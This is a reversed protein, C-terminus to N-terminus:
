RSAPMFRFGSNPETWYSIDVASCSQRDLDPLKKPLGLNSEEAGGSSASGNEQNELLDFYVVFVCPALFKASESDQKAIFGNIDIKEFSIKIPRGGERDLMVKPKRTRMMGYHAYTLHAPDMLNEMLVEYGYPVDRSGFMKTFSPDDLEPIHPPKKTKIIDKCQPAIDPWFWLIGNQVASPYVAACAKKSTHVPPGDPPAQPIFKCDGSGSFCWGHYPCQLRGWQDIRGESLPALRHPCADAFVRWENENRDWWVVVDLGLVKKAHPVRKDLDCVPMLPYWQSFWDFKEEQSNTEPETEPPDTAETSVQSSPSLTTFLKSPKSSFSSLTSLPSFHFSLLKPKATFHTRNYKLKLPTNYFPSVSSLLLAEM